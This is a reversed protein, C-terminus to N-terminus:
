NCSSKGQQHHESFNTNANNSSSSPKNSIRAILLDLESLSVPKRLYAFIGLSFAETFPLISSISTVAIVPLNPRSKHLVKLLGAKRFHDVNLDYLLLEIDTKLKEQNNQSSSPPELASISHGSDVLYDSLTRWLIRDKTMIAINMTRVRGQQNETQLNPTVLNILLFLALCSHHFM